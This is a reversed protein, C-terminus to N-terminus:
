SVDHNQIPFLVFRRPNDQLLPEDAEKEKLTMERQPAKTTTTTEVAPKQLETDVVPANEGSNEKEVPNLDLKKVPSEGM